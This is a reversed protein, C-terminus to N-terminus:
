DRKDMDSNDHPEQHHQQHEPPQTNREKEKTDEGMGKLFTFLMTVAKNIEPDRLSRLIDFYGIKENSDKQEAANAVGANIKLIFPELQKVNLMGLTGGLLLLNKLMNATESKDATKVLIDMVKDGQGFLGSLASLIGRDNMHGLIHMTELIAEKHDILATEIEELDRKRQDEETVTQKQIKTIAKAM